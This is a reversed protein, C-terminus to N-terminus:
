ESKFALKNQTLCLGVCALERNFVKIEECHGQVLVLEVNRLLDQSARLIEERSIGWGM